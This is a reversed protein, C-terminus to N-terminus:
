SEMSRVGRRKLYRECKKVGRAVQVQVTQESLGLRAAIEKQPVAQLKRLIVIERCRAPLTDIAQLLLEVEQSQSAQEVVGPGDTSVSLTRLDTVEVTPSAQSHRIADIALHRAIRFLLAKASRIPEIARARWVRLYSEQVLDDVDRVAPFVGRLYGKLSREHVHVEEAFWRADPSTAGQRPRTLVTTGSDPVNM